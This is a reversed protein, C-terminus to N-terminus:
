RLVKTVMLYKTKLPGDKEYGEIVVQKGISDEFSKWLENNAPVLYTTEFDFEASNTEKGTTDSLKNIIYDYTGLDPDERPAHSIEGLLLRKKGDTKSSIDPYGQCNAFDTKEVQVPVFSLDKIVYDNKATRQEKTDELWQSDIQGKVVVCKGVLSNINKAYKEIYLRKTNKPLKKLDVPNIDVLQYRGDDLKIENKLDEDILLERLIGTTQFNRQVNQASPPTKSLHDYWYFYFLTLLTAIIILITINKKKM